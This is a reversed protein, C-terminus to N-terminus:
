EVCFCNKIRLIQSKSLLRVDVYGWGYATLLTGDQIQTSVLSIPQITSGFDFQGGIRVLGIDNVFTNPDYAQHPIVQAVPFLSGGSDLQYNGVIVQLEFVPLLETILNIVVEQTPAVLCHAATIIQPLLCSNIYLTCHNSKCWFNRVFNPNVISATCFTYPRQLPPIRRLGAVFLGSGPPANMGGVIRGQHQSTVAVLVNLVIIVSTLAKM